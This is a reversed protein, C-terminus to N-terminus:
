FKARDGNEDYGYSRSFGAANWVMDFVPKLAKAVDEEFDNIIVEPLHIENETIQNTDRSIYSSPLQISYGEIGLITIFIFYPPEIELIKLLDLNEKISKILVNEIAVMPVNKRDGDEYATRPAIMRCDFGEITGNRFIQTYSSTKGNNGSYAYVGDLNIRHSYGSSYLPKFLNIRGESLDLLQKNSLKNTDIIGSLPVIHVTLFNENSELNVPGDNAKLDFIRKKRFERITDVMSGSAGFASKLEFVDMEYKGNSNRKYFRNSNKFIVRHPSNLSPKIRIILVSKEDGVDIVKLDTDTRPSIGDRIINELRQIETDSNAIEIGFDAKIEKKDEFVGFILDGGDTNALSSVDALFEKKDEDGNGPLASKYELTKGEFVQNDILQKIDDKTIESLKKQIM